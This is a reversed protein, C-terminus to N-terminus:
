GRRKRVPRQVLPRDNALLTSAAIRRTQLCPSRPTTHARTRRTRSTRVTSHGDSRLPAHPAACLRAHAHHRQGRRWSCDLRGCILASYPPKSGLNDRCFQSIIAGSIRRFRSNNSYCRTDELRCDSTAASAGLRGRRQMWSRVSSRWRRARRVTRTRSIRRRSRTAGARMPASDVQATALGMLAATRRPARELALTYERKADSAKGLGLLYEGALEHPSVIEVPPGFAFPLSDDLAAASALM